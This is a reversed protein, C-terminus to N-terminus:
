GGVFVAPDLYEGNYMIEFHCHNGTSDGTTGVAAILEGASISQGASVYVESAHGYLTVYGNGHDIVVYNGYGGDNWGADIVTGDAAAYIDTGSDAAIDMGKHNRDSMFPDSVYGGCVPWIFSGGGSMEEPISESYLEEQSCDSEEPEDSAAHDFYVESGKLTRAIETGDIYTVEYLCVRRGTEAATESGDYFASGTMIRCEEEETVECTYKVPLVAVKERIMVPEGEELEGLEPNLKEIEEVTMGFDDALKQATDGESAAYEAIVEREGTLYDTMDEASVLAASRYIGPKIEAEVAYDAEIVSEDSKYDELVLELEEEIHEGSVVAGIFENDVYVGCAEVLEAGTNETVSHVEQLKPLEKEVYGTHEGSLGDPSFVAAAEPDCDFEETDTYKLEAAWCVSGALFIVTLVPAACNMLCSYLRGRKRRDSENLCVGSKAKTEPRKQNM